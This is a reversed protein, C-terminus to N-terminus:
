SKGYPSRDILERILGSLDSPKKGAVKRQALEAQLRLWHKPDVYATLKVRKLNYQNTSKDSQKKIEKDVQKDRGLLARINEDTVGARKM